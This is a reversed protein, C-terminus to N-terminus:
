NVIFSLMLKAIAIELYRKRHESKIIQENMKIVSNETSQDLINPLRHLLMHRQCPPSRHDGQWYIGLKVETKYPM